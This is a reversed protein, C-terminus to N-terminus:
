VIVFQVLLVRLIDVLQILTSLLLALYNLGKSLRHQSLNVDSKTNIGFGLFYHIKPNPTQYNYWKLCGIDSLFSCRKGSNKTLFGRRLLAIGVNKAEVILLM